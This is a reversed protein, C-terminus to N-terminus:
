SEGNWEEVAEVEGGVWGAFSERALVAGTVENGSFGV